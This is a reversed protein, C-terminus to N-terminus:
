KNEIEALKNELWVAILGSPEYLSADYEGWLSKIRWRIELRSVCEGQFLRHEVSSPPSNKVVLEVKELFSLKKPYSPPLKQNTSVATNSNYEFEAQNKINIQYRKVTAVLESANDMVAVLINGDDPAGVHDQSTLFRVSNQSLKQNIDISLPQATDNLKSLLIYHLERKAIKGKTLLIGYVEETLITDLGITDLFTSLKQGELKASEVVLITKTIPALM